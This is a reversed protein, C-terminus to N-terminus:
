VVSKRDGTLSLQLIQLGTLLNSLNFEGNTGTVQKIETGQISVLVGSLTEGTDAETIIGKVQQQAYLSETFSLILFMIIIIKKM